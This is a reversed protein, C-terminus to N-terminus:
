IKDQNNKIKLAYITINKKSFVNKDCPEFVKQLKKLHEWGNGSTKILLSSEHFVGSFSSFYSKQWDAIELTLFPQINTKM